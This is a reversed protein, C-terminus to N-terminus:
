PCSLGAGLRIHVGLETNHMRSSRSTVGLPVYLANYLSTQFRNEILLQYFVHLVM